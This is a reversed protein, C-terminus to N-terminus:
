GWRAVSLSSRVRAEGREIAERGANLARELQVESMAPQEVFNATGAGARAVYLGACDCLPEVVGVDVVELQAGLARWYV